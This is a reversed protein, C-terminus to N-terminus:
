IDRGNKAPTEIDGQKLVLTNMGENMDQKPQAPLMGLEQFEM